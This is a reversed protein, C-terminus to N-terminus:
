GLGTGIRRAPAHGNRYGRFEEGRGYRLRQLFEDVEAELAEALLRQAGERALEELREGVLERVGQHSAVGKGSKSAEKSGKRYEQEM